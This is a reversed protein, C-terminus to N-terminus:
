LTGRLADIEAKFSAATPTMILPDGGATALSLAQLVRSLLDLLETTDNGLAVRGDNGLKLAVRQSATNELISGTVDVDAGDFSVGVLAFGDNVSFKRPDLPKRGLIGEKWQEISRCSFSVLVQDGVAVPITLRGQSTQPWMIPLDFVVPADGAEGFSVGLAVDVRGGARPRFAVVSGPMSTYLSDVNKDFAKTLLSAMSINIM